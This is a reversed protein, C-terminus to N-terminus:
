PQSRSACDAMIAANLEDPTSGALMMADGGRRWALWRSADSGLAEDFCVVYADGWALRLAELAHGEDVDFVGRPKGEGQGSAM